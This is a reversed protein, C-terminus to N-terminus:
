DDDIMFGGNLIRTTFEKFVHPVPTHKHSVGSSRAPLVHSSQVRIVQQGLGSTAHIANMHRLCTAIPGQRERMDVTLQDAAKPKLNAHYM